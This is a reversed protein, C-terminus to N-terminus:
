LHNGARTRESEEGIKFKESYMGVYRIYTLHIYIYMQIGGISMLCTCCAYFWVFMPICILHIFYYILNILFVYIGSSQSAIQVCHNCGSVGASCNHVPWLAELEKPFICSLKAPYMSSITSLLGHLLTVTCCGAQSSRVEM